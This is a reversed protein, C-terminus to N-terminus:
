DSLKGYGRGGDMIECVYDKPIIFEKIPDVNEGTEISERTVKFEITRDHDAIPTIYWTQIDKKEVPM